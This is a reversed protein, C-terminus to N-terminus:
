IKFLILMIVKLKTKVENTSSYHFRSSTFKYFLSNTILEKFKFKLSLSELFEFIKNALYTISLGNWLGILGGITTFYV